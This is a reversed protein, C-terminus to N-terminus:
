KFKFLQGDVFKFKGIYVDDKWVEFVMDLRMALEYILEKNEM